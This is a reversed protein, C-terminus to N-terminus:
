QFRLFLNFIFLSFVLYLSTLNVPLIPFSPKTPNKLTKLHDVLTELKILMLVNEKQAHTDFSSLDNINLILKLCKCRYVLIHLHVIPLAGHGVVSVCM